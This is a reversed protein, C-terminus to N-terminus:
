RVVKIVIVVVIPTFPFVFSLPSSKSTGTIRETHHM